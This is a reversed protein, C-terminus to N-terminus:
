CPTFEVARVMLLGYVATRIDHTPYESLCPLRDDEVVRGGVRPALRTSRAPTCLSGRGQRIEIATDLMATLRLAASGTAEDEAVGFSPAFCRVRMVGTEIWAWYVVHDHEPRLPGALAEVEAPAGLEVLTWDPL